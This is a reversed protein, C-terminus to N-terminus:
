RSMPLLLEDNEIWLAFYPSPAGARMLIVLFPGDCIMKRPLPVPAAFTAVLASESRLEAGREDLRFRVNQAAAILVHDTFGPNTFRSGILEHYSRTLDFSLRPIVLRDSREPPQAEVADIQGLVTAVTEALSAGPQLRAVLLRENTEKAELEVIFDERGAYRWIRVQRAREAWAEPDDWLGFASVMGGDFRLGTEVPQFPVEFPLVVRLWAFALVDNAELRDPLLRLPLAEDLTHRLREEVQARASEGFGAVAVYFREDLGTQPAPRDALRRALPPDKELRPPAGLVGALQEWALQFTACWLLNRGAVHAEDLTAAVTTRPLEFDADNVKVLAKTGPLDARKCSLPAM